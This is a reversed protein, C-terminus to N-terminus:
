HGGIEHQIDALSHAAHLPQYVPRGLMRSINSTSFVGRICPRDGDEIVLTHPRNLEKMTTIVHRVLTQKIFEFDFAPTDELPTMLMGTLIRNVPIENASGYQVPKESQIDYATIVGVVAGSDDTVLLLRVGNAKMKDLAEHLAANANITVPVIDTFDTMVVVAPDNESINPTVRTPSALTVGSQISVLPITRIENAM